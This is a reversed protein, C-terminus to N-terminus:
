FNLELQVPEIRRPVGDLWGIRGVFKVGCGVVVDYENALVSEIFNVHRADAGGIKGGLDLTDDVRCPSFGSRIGHSRQRTLVSIVPSVNTMEM